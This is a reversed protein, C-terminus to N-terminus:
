HIYDKQDGALYLYWIYMIEIYERIDKIEDM